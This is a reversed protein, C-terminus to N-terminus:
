DSGPAQRIGLGHKNLFRGPVQSLTRNPTLITLLWFTLVAVLWLVALVLLMISAM